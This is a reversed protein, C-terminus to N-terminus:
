ARSVPSGAPEATTEPQRRGVARTGLVLILGGVALATGAGMGAWLLARGDDATPQFVGAPSSFRVRTFYVDQSHTQDSSNRTDDWAVYALGTASALGIPGKVGYEQAVGLSRDIARDNVKLNAAWTQGGDSSYSYYVDQLRNEEAGESFTVDNRWDYWAVDIRGDSAVDLSPFFENFSWERQPQADNVAVPDSWSRGGDVSRMFAVFPAGAGTEEWAVYVHGTDRDVAPAPASLWDEEKPDRTFIAQQAFTRGGDRSVALYLHAPSALTGEPAEKAPKTNEGFFVLLAGDGGVALHPESMWGEVDGAVDVPDSFSRGSDESVAVYPRSEIDYFYEQGELAQESLNWTGNNSMWGVFVREPRDPDVVVSPLADAGFQGGELDPEVWPLMTTDFTAGLDGSRALFMRQHYTAPDFGSYAYYLTGDPGFAVDVVPGFNAYVCGPWEPAQPIPTASWSLGADTSVHLACRGGYAEGEGIALVQPDDPHVALAPVAHARVTPTRTVQVAADVAPPEPADASGAGLLASAALPLGLTLALLRRRM